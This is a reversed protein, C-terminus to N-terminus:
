RINGSGHHADAIVSTREIELGTLLGQAPRIQASQFGAVSHIKFSRKGHAVPEAAVMHGPCM